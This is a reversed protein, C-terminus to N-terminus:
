LVVADTVEGSASRILKNEKEVVQTEGTKKKTTTRVVRVEDGNKKKFTRVPRSTVTTGDEQTRVIVTNKIAAERNAEDIAAGIAAGLGAGIIGGIVAGREDGVAAGVGAGVLGGIAAGPLIASPKGDSTQCGALGIALLPAAIVAKRFISAAMITGQHSTQDRPTDRENPSIVWFHSKLVKKVKDLHMREVSHFNRMPKARLAAGRM